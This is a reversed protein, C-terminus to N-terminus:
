RIVMARTTASGAPTDLKLFYMGSSITGPAWQVSHNGGEVSGTFVTEVMRGSVDYVSLSVAGAFPVSFGVSTPGTVPNPSPTGISLIGTGQEGGEVDNGIIVWEIDYKYDHKWAGIYVTGSSPADINITVEGSANTTAEEYFTMGDGYNDVGDTLTVNVGSVPNGDDTVTILVDQNGPLINTPHSIELEGPLGSSDFTWIDMAPDGFWIYMRANTIGLSGHANITYTTAAMIAECVRFIGTDYLAIYIQKMYDHNPITYSSTNAGLNGSAGHEAWQWAESICRNAFQYSGNLCAINFVPPMFSNTLGMIDGALWGPSWQWCYYQGHGRYGVTGIGANIIDKLQDKTAGEPPFLKTFTIDCLDYSYAAVQNCCLTYKGPYDEEHAALVTESPIIGPTNASAFDYDMYGEFIKDVQNVIDASDGTIRGVSLDAYVGADMLSYYYDSVFGGYSFSPLEDHTGVICAFRTVGSQYNNLIANRIQTTSAPAALTEVRTHLGLFHHAQFLESVWEVNDETCVFVYEIGDDRYGGPPDAIDRFDIWNLVMNEMSPVMAPNVPRAIDQVTGQFDIRLTISSAAEMVGTSPSYIFPNVVLRAVNLGSWGGQQDVYAATGPASVDGSYFDRDIVFPYPAHPMDIEPTQRPLINMGSYDVSQVEEVTVRGETGWPLAFLATVSPLEPLGVEGQPYFSPLEVRDWTTGGAPQDYLYFGPVDIRVVMHNVDSELVSLTAREGASGGFSQWSSVSGAGSSFAAAAIVLVIIISRM